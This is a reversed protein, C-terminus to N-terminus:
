SNDVEMVSKDQDRVRDPILAGLTPLLSKLVSFDDFKVCVGSTTPVMETKNPPSWFKRLNVFPYSANIRLRVDESLELDLKADGGNRIDDIVQDIERLHDVFNHWTDANLSIIREGTFDQQKKYVTQHFCIKSRGDSYERLSVSTRSGIARTFKTMFTPHFAM